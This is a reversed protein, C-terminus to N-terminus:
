YSNVKSYVRPPEIGFDSVYFGGKSYLLASMAYFNGKTCCALMPM